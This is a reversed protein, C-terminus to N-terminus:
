LVVSSLLTLKLDKCFDVNFAQSFIYLLPNVLEFSLHYSKPNIDALSSREAYWAFKPHYISENDSGYTRERSSKLFSAFTSKSFM